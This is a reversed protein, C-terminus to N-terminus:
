RAPATRGQQRRIWWAIRLLDLGAGLAAGLRLKSGAVDHWRLLPVEVVTALLAAPGGSQVALRALIEVDFIWRTLFPQSFVRAVRETRLFLKAGCQTDYVPLRLVGSVLTSFVRGSYHRLLSREISRGMLRVRSGLALEVGPRELADGLASLETLPAALDADWYGVRSVDLSLALLMGQRVAEPKGANRALDIRRLQEPARACIERLVDATHDTSGDDVFIIRLGPDERAARLFPEAQLRKEENYCPVVLATSPM